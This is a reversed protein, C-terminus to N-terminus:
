KENSVTKEGGTVKLVSNIAPVGGVSFFVANSVLHVIGFPVFGVIIAVIFNIGFAYAFALNTILDYSFTCFLSIVGFLVAAGVKDNIMGSNKRFVLIRLLGGVVGYIAEGFMTSLLVPFSFGLPNLTGYIVWTLAGISGGILPGFCFGGVFVILDMFKVNFFPLLLYNTGICLAVLMVVVAIKRTIM